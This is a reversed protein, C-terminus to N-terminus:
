GSDRALREALWTARKRTAEREALREAALGYARQRALRDDDAEEELQEALAQFRAREAGLAVPDDDSHWAHHLVESRRWGDRPHRDWRALMLCVRGGRQGYEVRFLATRRTAPLEMRGHRPLFGARREFRELRRRRIWLFALLLASGAPLSVLWAGFLVEQLVSPQRTPDIPFDTAAVGFLASLAGGILVAAAAQALRRPPAAPDVPDPLRPRDSM